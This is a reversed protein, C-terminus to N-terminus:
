PTWGEVGPLSAKPDIERIADALATHLKTGQKERQFLDHFVPLVARGRSRLIQVYRCGEEESGKGEKLRSLFISLAAARIEPVPDKSLEELEPLFNDGEIEYIAKALAARLRPETERQYLQHLLSLAKSETLALVALQAPYDKRAQYTLDKWFELIIRVGEDGLKLLGELYPFKDKEKAPSRRLREILGKKHVPLFRIIILVVIGVLIISLLVALRDAFEGHFYNDIRIDILEWVIVVAILLVDLLLVFWGGWYGKRKARWVISLGFGGCFALVLLRLFLWLIVSITSNM